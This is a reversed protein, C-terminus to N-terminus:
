GNMRQGVIKKLMRDGTQAAETLAADANAGGVRALADVSRQKLARLKKRGFFARRRATKALVPVAADTGVTGLGEITELVLDHDKGLPQSEEIIRVLMPVVRPDREAVLADIVARRLAGTAARLVTQIARAAAPDPIAGLATIAARAVRPDNQRLL